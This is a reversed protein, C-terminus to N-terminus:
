DPPRTSGRTTDYNKMNYRKSTHTIIDTVKGNYVKVEFKVIANETGELINDIVILHPAEKAIKDLDNM